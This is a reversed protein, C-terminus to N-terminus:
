PRRRVNRWGAQAFSELVPSPGCASRVRAGTGASSDTRRQREDARAESVGRRRSPAGQAGDDSEECSLAMGSSGMRFPLECGAEDCCLMAHAPHMIQVTPRKPPNEPADRWTLSLL